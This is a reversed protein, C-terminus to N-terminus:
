APHDKQFQDVTKLFEDFYGALKPTDLAKHAAMAYVAAIVGEVSAMHQCNWCRCGLLYDCERAADVAEDKLNHALTKTKPCNKDFKTVDRGGDHDDPLRNNPRVM